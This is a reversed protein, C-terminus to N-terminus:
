ATSGKSAPPTQTRPVVYRRVWLPSISIYRVALGGGGLTYDQSMMQRFSDSFSAELFHHGLRHMVAVADKDLFM